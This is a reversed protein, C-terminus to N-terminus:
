RLGPVSLEVQDCVRNWVANDSESRSVAPWTWRENDTEDDQLELQRLCYAMHWGEKMEPGYFPQDMHTDIFIRCKALHDTLRWGTLPKRKGTPAHTNKPNCM